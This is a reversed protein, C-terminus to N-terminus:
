ELKHQNSNIKFKEQCKCYYFPYFGSDKNKQEHVLGEFKLHSKPMDQKWLCSPVRVFIHLCQSAVAKLSFANDTESSSMCLMGLTSSYLCIDLIIKYLFFFDIQCVRMISALQPRLAASHNKVIAGQSTCCSFFTDKAVAGLAKTYGLASSTGEMCSRFQSLAISETKHHAADQNGRKRWLQLSETNCSIHHCLTWSWDNQNTIIWKLSPRVKVSCGWLM